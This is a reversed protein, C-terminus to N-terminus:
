HVSGIRCIYVNTAIIANLSCSNNLLSRLSNRPLDKDSAELGSKQVM